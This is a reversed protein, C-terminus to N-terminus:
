KIKKVLRHFFSVLKWSLSDHIKKLEQNFKDLEKKSIHLQSQQDIIVQDKRGMEMNLNRLYTNIFSSQYNNAELIFKKMEKEAKKLINKDVQDRSFEKANSIDFIRLSDYIKPDKEGIGKDNFFIDDSVNEFWGKRYLYQNGKYILSLQKRIQSFIMRDRDENDLLSVGQFNYTKWDIGCYDLITPAVDILSISQTHRQATKNPLRFILPVKIQDLTVTLAHIFFLNNEGLYEGHDSHIIILTDDYIDLVKLKNILEGIQDDIYKICADYQSIYHAVKKEYDEKHETDHTMGDPLHYDFIGPKYREPAVSDLKPTKLITHLERKDKKYYQDNVYLNQYKQPPKYPGHADMLHIWLFFDKHSNEQLWNHAEKMTAQAQRITQGSGEIQHDLEDDYTSFGNSFDSLKKALAINSVFAGTNFGNQRLIRQLMPEPSPYGYFNVNYFGVFNFSPYRSTFLSAFSPLTYSIPSFTNEFLWGGKAVADINTSTDRHYGYCGLHDARVADLSILVVRKREQRSQM